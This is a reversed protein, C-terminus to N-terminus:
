EKITQSVAEIALDGFREKFIFLAEQLSQAAIRVIGGGYQFNFIQM